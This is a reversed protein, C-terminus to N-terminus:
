LQASVIAACTAGRIFDGPVCNNDSADWTCESNSACANENTLLACYEACEGATLEDCEEQCKDNEWVCPSECAAQSPFDECAELLLVTLPCAPLTVVLLLCLPPPPHLSARVAPLLGVSQDRASARAKARDRWRALSAATRLLLQLKQMQKKIGFRQQPPAKWLGSTFWGPRELLEDRMREPLRALPMPPPPTRGAAESSSRKKPPEQRQSAGTM